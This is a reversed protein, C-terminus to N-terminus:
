LNHGSIPFDLFNSTAIQSKLNALDNFLTIFLYSHINKDSNLHSNFYLTLMQLENLLYKQQIEFSGMPRKSEINNIKVHYIRQSFVGPKIEKFFQIEEEESKFSYNLVFNKLETLTSKISTISKHAKRIINTEEIDIIQLQKDLDKNLKLIFHNM